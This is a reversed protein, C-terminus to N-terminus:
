KAPEELDDAINKPLISIFSIDCQYGTEYGINAIDRMTFDDEGRLMKWWAETPVTGSQAFAFAMTGRIRLEFLEIVDARSLRCSATKSTEGM